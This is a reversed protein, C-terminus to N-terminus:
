RRPVDKASDTVIDPHGVPRSKGKEAANEHVAVEPPLDVRTIVWNCTTNPSDRLTILPGADSAFAPLPLRLAPIGLAMPNMPALNFQPDLIGTIWHRQSGQTIPCPATLPVTLNVLTPRVPAASLCSRDPEEPVCWGHWVAFDCGRLLRHNGARLLHRGVRFPDRTVM